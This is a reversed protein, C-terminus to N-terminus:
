WEIKVFLSIKSSKKGDPLVAMRIKRGLPMATNRRSDGGWRPGRICTPYALIEIRFSYRAKRDSVAAGQNTNQVEEEQRIRTM